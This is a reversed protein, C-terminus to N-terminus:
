TGRRLKVGEGEGSDIFIVGAEELARRIVAVTSPNPKVKGSEFKSVTNASVRAKAALDHTTWSLAARAMRCQSPSIM